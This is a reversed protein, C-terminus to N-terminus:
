RPHLSRPRREGVAVRSARPGRRARLALGTRVVSWGLGLSGGLLAVWAGDPMFLLLLRLTRTRLVVLLPLAAVLNPLLPLLLARLGARGGPPRSLPERRWRGVRRVGAAMGVLQLLPILPLGRLAWPIAGFRVPSPQRGALLAGVGVGVERLATFSMLMHNANILLVVGKKQAPVLAMYAYFDPVVGDHWLITQPGSDDVFWGM